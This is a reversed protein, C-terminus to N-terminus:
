FNKHCRTLSTTFKHKFLQLNRSDVTHPTLLSYFQYKEITYDMFEETLCGKLSTYSYCIFGYSKFDYCNAVIDCYYYVYLRM